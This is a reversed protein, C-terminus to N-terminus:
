ESLKRMLYGAPGSLRDRVHPQQLVASALKGLDQSPRLLMSAVERLGAGGAAELAQAVQKPVQAAALAPSLGRLALSVRRLNALDNEIRDLLLADLLKGFLFIPSSLKVQDDREQRPRGSNGPEARLGVVLM